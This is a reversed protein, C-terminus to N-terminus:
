IMDAQSIEMSHMFTPQGENASIKTQEKALLARTIIKSGFRSKIADICYELKELRERKQECDFLDYQRDENFSCLSSARIGLSRIPKHWNYNSLFLEYASEAIENTLCTPKDLPAQREFGTLDNSRIWIQVLKSRFDHKRLRRAVSDALMYFIRKVEINNTLDYPTTTSNGIGKITTQWGLRHVPARDLGNAYHWILDGHKGLMRRIFILDLQALAGITYVGISKLKKTTAFGIYFLKEVPLQWVCDQYNKPTIVTVANPKKMDSGLKAFTKNWSVGISCTIGLEKKVRKCIINAIEEGDKHLLSSTSVDLWCEDIGFSEIKDSYDHYIKQAAKSFDIYRQFTPKIFHLQPCKQKAQWLAEGTRIKYKKAIENKALVIGRRAEANGGVAVPLHSISPDLMCEVSAFFGNLDCHLIPTKM